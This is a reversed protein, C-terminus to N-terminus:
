VPRFRDIGVEARHHAALLAAHPRHQDHLVVGAVAVAGGDDRRSNGGLVPLALSGVWMQTQGALAAAQGLVGDDQQLLDAGQIFFAQPLFHSPYLVVDHLLHIRSDRHGESQRM